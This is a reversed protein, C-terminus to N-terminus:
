GAPTYPDGDRTRFTITFVPTIGTLGEGQDFPVAGGPVTYLALGGRTGDELLKAEIDAWARNLLTDLALTEDRGPIIFTVLAIDMDWATRPPHGESSLEENRESLGMYLFSVGNAIAKDNELDGHTARVCTLNQQCGGAETIRNVVGRVNQLIQEAVSEAM